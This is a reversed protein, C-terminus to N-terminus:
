GLHTNEWKEDSGKSKQDSQISAWANYGKSRGGKLKNKKETM